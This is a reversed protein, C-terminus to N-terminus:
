LSIDEEGAGILQEQIYAARWEQIDLTVFYRLWGRLWFDSWVNPLHAMLAMTKELGTSYSLSWAM